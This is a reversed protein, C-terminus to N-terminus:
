LPVNILPSLTRWCTVAIRVPIGMMATTSAIRDHLLLASLPANKAPPLILLRLQPQLSLRSRQHHFYQSHPIPHYTTTRSQCVTPRMVWRLLLLHSTLLKNSLMPLLTHCQMPSELDADRWVVFYSFHKSAPWHTLSSIRTSPTNFTLKHNM